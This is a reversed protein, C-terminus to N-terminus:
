TREHPHLPISATLALRAAQKARLLYQQVHPKELAVRLGVLTMGAHRAASSWDMPADGNLGVMADLATRLKKTMPRLKRPRGSVQEQFSVSKVPQM